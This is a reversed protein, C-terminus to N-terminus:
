STKDVIYSLANPTKKKSDPFLVSIMKILEKIKNFFKVNHAHIDKINKICKLLYEYCIM